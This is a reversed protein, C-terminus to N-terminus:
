RPFKAIAALSLFFFAEAHFPIFFFFLSRLDHDLFLDKRDNQSKSRNKGKDDGWRRTQETVDEVRPAPDETGLERKARVPRDGKEGRMPTRSQGQGM